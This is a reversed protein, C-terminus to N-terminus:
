KIKRAQSRFAASELDWKEEIITKLETKIEPYQLALKRLIALAFAKIAPKEAPALIYEFCHNMLLGHFRKPVPIDRFCRLTNRKVADHLGPQALNKLLRTAYKMLLGPNAEAAYSLPWAALQVLKKDNGLFITVLEKFRAPSHGVWHVVRTAQAKSHEALLLNELHSM